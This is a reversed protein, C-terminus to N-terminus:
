PAARREGISAILKALARERELYRTQAADLDIEAFRVTEGPRRQALRPLDVLAIQAIRPYGGVTPHEAMLAIPQGDPPLQLTGFALPESVLEIPSALALRSGDLRVGVRNSESAVRFRMEFLRSRSAADLTDFHTGRVLRIPRDPDSDFWPRPDISWTSPRKAPSPAFRFFTGIELRDGNRLARGDFGGLGANVDTSASGLTPEVVIGGCIALWARLGRRAHGIEIEEGAEIDIPRWADIERDGIHASFEAGAIAITAAADFRLRPGVLTLELVPADIANGVLANAIRMAADDMVGARGVGLMACGFRGLDQVTTLLGAKLVEVSM